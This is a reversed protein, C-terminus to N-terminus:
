GEFLLKSSGRRAHDGHRQCPAPRHVVAKYRIKAAKTEFLIGVCLCEVIWAEGAALALTTAWCQIVPSMFPESDEDTHRGAVDM